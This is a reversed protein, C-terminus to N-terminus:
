QTGRFPNNKAKFIAAKMESSCGSLNETKKGVIANTTPSLYSMKLSASLSNHALGQRQFAVGSPVYMWM